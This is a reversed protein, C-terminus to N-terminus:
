LECLRTHVGDENLLLPVETPTQPRLFRFGHIVWARKSVETLDPTEQFGVMFNFLNYFLSIAPPLLTLM